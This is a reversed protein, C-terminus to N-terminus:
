TPTSTILTLLKGKVKITAMNTSLNGTTTTMVRIM